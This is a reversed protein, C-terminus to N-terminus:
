LCRLDHITTRNPMIKADLMPWKPLGLGLLCKRIAM